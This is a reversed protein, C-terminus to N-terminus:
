GAVFIMQDEQSTAREYQQSNQKEQRIQNSLKKNIMQPRYVTSDSYGWSSTPNIPTPTYPKM